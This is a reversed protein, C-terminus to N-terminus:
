DNDRFGRREEERCDNMVRLCVERADFLRYRIASALATAEDSHAHLMEIQSLGDNIARLAMKGHCVSLLFDGMDVAQIMLTLHREGYSLSNSVRWIQRTGVAEPFKVIAAEWLYRLQLYLGATVVFVPHRHLTYPDSDLIGDEDTSMSPLDADDDEVTDGVSWDDREWGMAQAVRDLHDHQGPNQDYLAVFRAIEKQQRFLFQQWDFENWSIDGREEWDGDSSSDYEFNGM